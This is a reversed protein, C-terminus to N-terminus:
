LKNMEARIYALNRRMDAAVDGSPANTELNAFGSYGIEAIIQLLEPWRLRGEGLYHPNDKIHIQCIREAGLWRLEKYPDHGWNMANGPDYYVKLAHHGVRDLIRVNNEASITNELGLTVGADAAERALDKLAMATADMEARTKLECNGFFPLLLVKANLQRSLRIADRVWKRAEDDSKLCNVHLRDICAGAVAIQHQRFAAQYAAIVEPRDTELRGGDSKRGFSIEVGEFGISAALAVAEVNAGKRLNWDTVGIRIRPPAAAFALPGALSAALMSRRTVTNQGTKAM